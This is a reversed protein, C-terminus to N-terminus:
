APLAPQTSPPAAAALPGVGGLRHSLVSAAHMVRQPQLALDEPQLMAKNLCLGVAAVPRGGADLVPAALGYVGLRVGEDDISYGRQRVQALEALLAQIDTQSRPTLAALPGAGLHRLVQNPATYALMARGTAALHAPLRMGKNFAMGLPRTGARAALYIVEGADLVSLLMTEEPGQQLEDAQWLLDFERAVDTTAVFAEALSMVRPGLQLSGDGQKQLYGLSLLTNCLGHVSSKPLALETALRAMSMSQRQRALRDLLAMARAVAPVQAPAAPAPRNASPIVSNSVARM